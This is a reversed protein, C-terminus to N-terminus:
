SLAKEEYKSSFENIRFLIFDIHGVYLFLGCSTMATKKGKIGIVAEM